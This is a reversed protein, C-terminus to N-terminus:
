EADLIKRITYDDLDTIFNRQIVEWVPAAVCEKKRHCPAKKKLCKNIEIPGEITEIVERLTISTPPRALMYGGSIGRKSLVFGKKEFQRMVKALFMSPIDMADSIEKVTSVKGPPQKALYLIARVGYDGKRTLIM